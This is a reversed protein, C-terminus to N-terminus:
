PAVSIVIKGRAHGGVLLRLAEAGQALAYTRGVVPKVKGAEILAALAGLDAANSRALFFLVKQRRFVSLAAQSALAGLHRFIREGQAGGGGAAVLRGDATMVRRSEAFRRNGILDFILDYRRDGRTFDDQTYDVVHDAGLSRVLEVNATSCVGTVEAGMAKAIQVAFTGIGGAAGNVLVKEGEALRGRDRLGQLATLGAVPVAAAEEFSISEPKAALKTENACGYEALAGRCAGFVKDGPGFRSVDRGVAEVEGAVDVGPRSHKPRRLGSALRAAYPRGRMLHGDLPNLAAARIRILVEDDAPVPKEVEALELVEPQGYRRYVIAKM